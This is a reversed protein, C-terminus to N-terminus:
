CHHFRQSLEIQMFVEINARQGLLSLLDKQRTLAIRDFALRILQADGQQPPQSVFGVTESHAKMALLPPLPHFPRAKGINGSESGLANSVQEGVEMRDIGNLHGGQLLEIGGRPHPRRQGLLDPIVKM